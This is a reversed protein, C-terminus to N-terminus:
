VASEYPKTSSNITNHLQYNITQVPLRSCRDMPRNWRSQTAPRARWGIPSGLVFDSARNTTEWSFPSLLVSEYPKSHITKISRSSNITNHLQHNITQSSLRSCRDM